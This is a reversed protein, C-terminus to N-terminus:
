LGNIKNFGDTAGKLQTRTVVATATTTRVGDQVCEKLPKAHWTVGKTPLVATGDSTNQPYHCVLWTLVCLFFSTYLACIKYASLPIHSYYTTIPQIICLSKHLLQSEVACCGFGTFHTCIKSTKLTHRAPKAYTCMKYMFNSNRFQVLYYTCIM